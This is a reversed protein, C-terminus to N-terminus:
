QWSPTESLASKTPRPPVAEDIPYITYGSRVFKVEPSLHYPLIITTKEYGCCHCRLLEEELFLGDPHHTLTMFRDPPAYDEGGNVHIWTGPADKRILRRLEGNDIHVADTSFYDILTKETQSEGYYESCQNRSYITKALEGTELQSRNCGRVAIKSLDSQDQNTAPAIM